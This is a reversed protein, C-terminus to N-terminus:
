TVRNSVAEYSGDHHCCFLTIDFSSTDFYLKLARDHVDM